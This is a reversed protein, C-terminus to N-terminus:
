SSAIIQSSSTSALGHSLVIPIPKSRTLDDSNMALLILFEIDAMYVYVREIAIVSRGVNGASRSHKKVM